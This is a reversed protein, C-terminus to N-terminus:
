AGYLRTKLAKLQDFFERANLKLRNAFYANATADINRTRRFIFLVKRNNTRDLSLLEFDACLLAAAVGLDYTTWVVDPDTLDLRKKM